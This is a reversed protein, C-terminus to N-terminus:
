EPKFGKAVLEFHTGGRRVVKINIFGADVMSKGLTQATFGTRHAMYTNGAVLSPRFGYLIDLPTIPGAPSNYVPNDLNGQAIQEAVAQLDPCAVVAYGGPKLVRCFENLALSVEHAYLHELNHSSLVVDAFGNRVNTMNRIDGVIHPNVSPDIDVRIERWPERQFEPPVKRPNKPGSGVHLLIKEGDSGSVPKDNSGM